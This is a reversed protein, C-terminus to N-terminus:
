RELGHDLCDRAFQPPCSDPPHSPVQFRGDQMPRGFQEAVAMGNALNSVQEPNAARLGTAKAELRGSIAHNRPNPVLALVEFRRYFATKPEILRTGFDRATPCRPKPCGEAERSEDKAFTSAWFILSRVSAPYPWGDWDRRCRGSRVTM